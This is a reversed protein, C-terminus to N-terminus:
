MILLLGSSSTKPPRRLAQDGEDPDFRRDGAAPMRSLIPKDAIAMKEPEPHTRPSPTSEGGPPRSPTFTMGCVPCLISKGLAEDPVRLAKQCGPCSIPTPM